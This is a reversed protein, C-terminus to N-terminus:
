DALIKSRSLPLSIGSFLIPPHPRVNLLMQLRVTVQFRLNVNRM